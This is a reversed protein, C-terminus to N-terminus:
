RGKQDISRYRKRYFEAGFPYLDLLPSSVFTDSNDPEPSDLNSLKLANLTLSSSVASPM